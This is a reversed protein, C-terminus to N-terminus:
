GLLAGVVPPLRAVQQLLEEMCRAGTKARIRNLHTRVTTVELNLAAAIDAARGGSCLAQLVRTEAGSLGRTRAFFDISLPECMRAKSLLLLVAEGGETENPVPMVAVDLPDDGAAVCLLQRHGSRAAADIAAQVRVRDAARRFHLGSSALSVAQGAHLRLRALRNSYLVAGDADLLVAGYDLAELAWGCPCDALRASAALAPARPALVPGDAAFVPPRPLDHM